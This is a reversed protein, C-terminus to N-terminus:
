HPAGHAAHPVDYVEKIRSTRLFHNTLKSRPPFTSVASASKPFRHVSQLSCMDERTNGVIVRTYKILSPPNPPFRFGTKSYTAKIEATRKETPAWRSFMGRPQQPRAVLDFKQLKLMRIVIHVLCLETNKRKLSFMHVVSTGDNTTDDVLRPSERKVVQFNFIHSGKQLFSDM